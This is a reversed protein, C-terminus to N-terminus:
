ACGGFHTQFSRSANLHPSPSPRSDGPGRNRGPLHAWFGSFGRLIRTSVPMHPEWGALLSHADGAPALWDAVRSSTGAALPLCGARLCSLLRPARPPGGEGAPAAQGGPCGAAQEPARSSRARAPPHSPSSPRQRPGHTSESRQGALGVREQSGEGGEWTVGSVLVRSRVVRNRPERATAAWLLAGPRPQPPDQPIARQGEWPKAVECTDWARPGLRVAPRM